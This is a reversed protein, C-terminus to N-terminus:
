THPPLNRANSRSKNAAESELTWLFPYDGNVDWAEQESDKQLYAAFFLYEGKVDKLQETMDEVSATLDIYNHVVNKPCVDKKTRSLAHVTQWQEPHKGLEAVIERGLIGLPASTLSLPLAM